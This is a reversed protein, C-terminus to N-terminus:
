KVFLATLWLVLCVAWTVVVSLSQAGGPVVSRIEIPILGWLGVGVVYGLILGVIGFLVSRGLSREKRYVGYFTSGTAMAGVFQVTAPLPNLATLTALMLAMVTPVVWELLSPMAFSDAMWSGSPLSPMSLRPLSSPIKEAFRIGDPVKIKGEQRLKLRRMLVSDYSAEVESCKKVDGAYERLLRDRTIQIEEFSASEAVGLKEYPTQDSM